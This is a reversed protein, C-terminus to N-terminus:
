VFRSLVIIGVVAMWVCLILNWRLFALLFHAYIKIILLMRAEEFGSRLILVM